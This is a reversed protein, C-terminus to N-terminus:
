SNALFDTYRNTDDLYREEAVETEKRPKSESNQNSLIIRHSGRQSPSQNSYAMGELRQKQTNSHIM